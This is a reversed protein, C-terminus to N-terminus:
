TEFRILYFDIYDAKFCFFRLFIFLRKWALLYKLYIM